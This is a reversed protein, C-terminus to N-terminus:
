FEEATAREYEDRTVRIGGVRTWRARDGGRAQYEAYAASDEERACNRLRRAIGDLKWLGAMLALRTWPVGLGRRFSRVTVVPGITVLGMFAVGRIIVGPHRYIWFLALVAFIAALTM